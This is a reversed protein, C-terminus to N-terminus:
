VSLVCLALECLCVRICLSVPFLDAVSCTDKVEEAPEWQRSIFPFVRIEASGLGAPRTHVLEYFAMEKMIM